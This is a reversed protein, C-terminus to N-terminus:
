NRVLNANYIQLHEDNLYKYMGDMYRKGTHGCSNYYRIEKAPIHVVVLTWHCIDINM